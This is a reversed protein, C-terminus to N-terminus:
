RLTPWLLCRPRTFDPQLSHGLFAEDAERPGIVRLIVRPDGLQERREARRRRDHLLVAAHGAENRRDFRAAADRQDGLPEIAQRPRPQLHARQV